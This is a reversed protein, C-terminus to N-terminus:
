EIPEIDNWKTSVCQKAHTVATATRQEEEFMRVKESVVIDKIQPSCEAEKAAKNASWKMGSKIEPYAKWLIEDASGKMMM